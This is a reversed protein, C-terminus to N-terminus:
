FLSMQGTPPVLDTGGVGLLRVPRECEWAQKLLVFAARYIQVDDDTPVDLSMQRTLTEFDDYRLKITITGAAMGARELRRAVSQSLRWLEKKLAELERLDQAFTTERSVSKREHETVVLRRDIGRARQAMAAGHDGFRAALKRDSLQALDGVTTVGMHSLKEATVPGIGWIVRVPLPRLFAAEEGPHVVILGGPKDHDSAVKAVLKNTAVGLSASLGVEDRVREQLHRALPVIAEWHDVKDTLDLYAEDISMKEVVPTAEHLIAMVERSYQRYLDFRPPLVVAQPCLRVARYMPMASHVGYERAAYSAAAVVGRSEPRGGVLIPKDALNPDELMEVAAYFADLDLHVVARVRESSSSPRDGPKEQRSAPDLALPLRNTQTL